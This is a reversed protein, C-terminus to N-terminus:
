SDQYKEKVWELFEKPTMITVPLNAKKIAETQFHNRDLTILFDSDSKIASAIIHRDKIAIIGDYQSLEEKTATYVIEAKLGAIEKYFRLLVDRSLKKRINRQSELLVKRTTAAHFYCGQCVELVLSSGGDPSAAATILVSADLFVKKKRPM